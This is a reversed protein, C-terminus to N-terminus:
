LAILVRSIITVFISIQTLSTRHHTHIDVIAFEGARRFLERYQGLDNDVLWNDVAELDSFYRDHVCIIIKWLSFSFCFSLTIALVIKAIRMLM